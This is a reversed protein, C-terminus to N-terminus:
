ALCSPLPLALHLTLFNFSPDFFQKKNMLAKYKRDYFYWLVYNRRVTEKESAEGFFRNKELNQCFIFLKIVLPSTM